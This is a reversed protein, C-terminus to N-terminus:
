TFAAIQDLIQAESYPKSILAKGGQKVAWMADAKQNKSSIFVIPIDKTEPNRSIERCARYGDIGDMVIDLFILNPQESEAKQIAEEGSSATFVHRCKKVVIQKLNSLDTASDDVILVKPANM